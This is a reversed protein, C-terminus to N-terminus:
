RNRPAPIFADAALAKEIADLTSLWRPDVPSIFRLLPMLLSAYIDLQLQQYAGNGIRVPQSDRYGRLHTLQHEELNTRGDLGYMIQMPRHLDNSNNLQRGLWRFFADAESRLGLRM